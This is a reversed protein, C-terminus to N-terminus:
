FPLDDVELQEEEKKDQGTPTAPTAEELTKDGQKTPEFFTIFNVEEGMYEDEKVGVNIILKSGTIEELIDELTDYQLRFNPNSAKLLSTIRKRNFIDTEKEKFIKEFLVKNKYPQEVDSRLRFYVNLYETGTKAVKIEIKEVFAEYKGKPMVGYSENQFDTLDYGM